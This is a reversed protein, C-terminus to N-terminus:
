KQKSSLSRVNCPTRFSRIEGIERRTAKYIPAINPLFREVGDELDLSASYYFQIDYFSPFRCIMNYPTM